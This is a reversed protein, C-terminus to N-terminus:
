FEELSQGLGALSNILGSPKTIRETGDGLMFRSLMVIFIAILPAMSFATAIGPGPRLGIIAKEYALISYVRTAGGPGGGTMLFILGFTNFTAIFSLMMTVAIVYRLGPLTIHRFRQIINAGDVEAAEVLEKPISKLGSLLLITYFPIGKWVNVAIVSPLSLHTEALWARPRDIIGLGQLIPNLGGFIPDYISRFALATVVEPAIWPLLMLGTLISRFPLKSNLILAISLGVIFKVLLSWFTFKFTNSLSTLYDSDQLLKTYNRLGVFTDQGTLLSRVKMSSIIADIFPWLILGAMIIVTPLIFPIALKWDRGLIHHLRKPKRKESPVYNLSAPKDM